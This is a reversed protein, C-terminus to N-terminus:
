SNLKKTMIQDRQHYSRKSQYYVRSHVDSYILYISQIAGCQLPLRSAYMSPYQTGEQGSCLGDHIPLHTESTMLEGEHRAGLFSATRSGRCTHIDNEEMQNTTQTIEVYYRIQSEFKHICVVHHDRPNLYDLPNLARM